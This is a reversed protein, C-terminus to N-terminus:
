PNTTCLATVRARPDAQVISADFSGRDGSGILGVSIKSNAQSGRVVAPPVIFFLDRRSPIAIQSNM